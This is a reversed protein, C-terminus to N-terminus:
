PRKLLESKKTEYEDATLIGQDRLETLQRLKDVAPRAFAPPPAVPISPPASPTPAPQSAAANLKAAFERAERQRKPDLDVVFGFGEGEVLLFLEREDKKKRM